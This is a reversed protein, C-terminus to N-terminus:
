RGLIQALTPRPALAPAGGLQGMQVARTNNPPAVGPAFHLPQPQPQLAKLAAVQQPSLPAAGAPAVAASAAPPTPLTGNPLGALPGQAFKAPDIASQPNMFGAFGGAEPSDSMTPVQPTAQNLQQLIPFPDWQPALQAIRGFLASMDPAGGGGGGFGFDM